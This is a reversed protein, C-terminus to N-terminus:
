TRFNQKQILNKVKSTNKEFFLYFNLVSRILVFTQLRWIASNFLGIFYDRISLSDLIDFISNIKFLFSFGILPLYISSVSLSSLILSILLIPLNSFPEIM